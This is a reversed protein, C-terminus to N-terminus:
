FVHSAIGATVPITALLNNGCACLLGPSSGCCGLLGWKCTTLVPVLKLGHKQECVVLLLFQLRHISLPYPTCVYAPNMLKAALAVADTQM